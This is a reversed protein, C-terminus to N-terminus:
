RAYVVKGAFLTLLVQADGIAQPPLATFDKDVVVLDAAKGVEISGTRAESHLLYASATTYARLATDLDLAENENLAPASADLAPDRRTRMVEIAAFPNVTTVPWDSGGVILAGAKHLSGWPYMRQVRAAGVQPTNIDTIYTDPYAWFSQANVSVGLAKFRTHDAVDVLQLHALTPRLDKNGNFAQSREYSNLAARAAADGIVHMHVQFDERELASVLADLDKVDANLSGKHEPHDHYPQLLAATEGELVGDLYIKTATVQLLPSRKGFKERLAKAEAVAKHPTTPEVIICAVVRVPLQGREALVAYAELRREDVGADMISTIGNESLHTVALKLAAVDDELTPEPLLKEILDMASERLTGTPNGDVDREIVGHEPNPTDKTIGALELARTNAWGSHGDEGRFYAPRDSVVADLVSKHPNAQAFLALHWGRGFVFGGRDKTATACAKVKELVADVTKIDALPCGLEQRGAGLPHVHGDHLGPLVLRGPLARVTTQPGVFAAVGADDGVYVVAGERVAVASAQVGTGTWITAQTIVTDAPGPVATTITAAPDGASSSACSAAVLALTAVVSVLLSARLM